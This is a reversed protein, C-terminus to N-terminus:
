AGREVPSPGPTLSEALLISREAYHEKKMKVEM